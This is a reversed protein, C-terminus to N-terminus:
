GHRALRRIALGGFLVAVGVLVAASTAPPVYSFGDVGALGIAVQSLHFAPWVVVFMELSGPLPFFLGSLWLMPLFIINIIAPASSGSARAGVFLGLACFAPAGAVMVLAICVMQALSLPAAGALRAAVLISTVGLATFAMAVATRAVLWAGPPSPLARRLRFQGADREAALTCGAGFMAPGMTAYVCWSCFLYSGLSPNKAIEGAPLVIGFFLYIPVPLLLFPISLGPTRLVRLAEVRAEMAYARLVLRLPMTTDDGARASFPAATLPQM